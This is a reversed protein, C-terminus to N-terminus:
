KVGEKAKYYALLENIIGPINHEKAEAAVHIDHSKIIKSTSPGISVTVADTILKDIEDKNLINCFGKVTSGSTFIIVDPPYNFLKEKFGELWEPYYTNYTQIPIVNADTDILTKEVTDDALNGRIRVITSGKLNFSDAMQKALSEVTAKSPIFDAKINFTKLARATGYGVAAIKFGALCRIDADRSVLQNIFYRVGNESTFILWNDISGSSHKIDDFATWGKLDVHESTAITPYPMVEAGIERLSVYMAQAQDAPRTVMIRIGSLPKHSFWDLENQFGVVDGIVFIAPPNINMRKAKAPLEHLSSVVIKQSPLTGREIVAAPTEPSLGNEILAAAINEFERVGMYIVLTGNKAKALHEWPVSTTEKEKAKHGTAFVVYSAKSRETCPIGSYAPVAVGATVGPVIEYKIGNDHLYKAEEGGRGFTFPDGGKLRAVTKGDRAFDTLLRNIDKQPLSHKGEIKGVYKKEIHEPLSVVIESPVLNDYVVINCSNLLEKGRVTILGPDGPGAGILYVTGTKIADAM